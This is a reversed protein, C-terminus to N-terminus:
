QLAETLTSRDSQRNDSLHQWPAETLTAAM